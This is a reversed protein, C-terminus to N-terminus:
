ELRGKSINKKNNVALTIILVVAVVLLVGSIIILVTIMDLGFPLKSNNSKKNVDASSQEVISSFRQLTDEKTDYCYLNLEGDKNICYFYLFDDSNAKDLKYAYVDRNHVTALVQSFGLIEPSASSDLIIYQRGCFKEIILSSFSDNDKNYLCAMGENSDSDIAYFIVYNCGKAAYAPIKESGYEYETLEFGSPKKVNEIMNSINLSKGDIIITRTKQTESESTINESSVAGSDVKSSTTKEDSVVNKPQKRTITLTYKSVNGNEATVTIVRVNKGVKLSDSGSIQVKSKSDTPIASVAISKVENEVISTYSKVNKSFGPALVGKSLTISKLTSDSSQANKDIVSVTASAGVIKYSKEDLDIYECNIVSINGNGGKLGKFTLTTTATTTNSCSLVIKASGGSGNASDGSVFKLISDDYSVNAELALMKKPATFRVTVTVSNGVNIKSSSFSIVTSSTAANVGFCCFASLLAFILSFSLIKIIRNRM